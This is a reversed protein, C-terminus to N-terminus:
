NCFTRIIIGSHFLYRVRTLTSLVIAVFILLTQVFFTLIICYENVPYSYCQKTANGWWWWLTTEGINM